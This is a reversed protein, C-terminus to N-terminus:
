MRNVKEEEELDVHSDYLPVHCENANGNYSGFADRDQYILPPRAICVQAKLRMNVHNFHVDSCDVLPLLHPFMEELYSNKYLIAHKCLIQQNCPTSVIRDSPNARQLSQGKKCHGFGLYLVDHQKRAFEHCTAVVDEMKVGKGFVIDDELILTYTDDSKRHDNAKHMELAHYLACLYSLHVTCKAPNGYIGPHWTTEMTCYPCPSKPIGVMYMTTLTRLTPENVDDPTLSDFFWVDSPWGVSRLFRQMHDRRQSLTLTYTVIRDRFWEMSPNTTTEDQRFSLRLFRSKTSAFLTGFTDHVHEHCSLFVFLRQPNDHDVDYVLLDRGIREEGFYALVQEHHRIWDERWKNTIDHITHFRHYAMSEQVYEKSEMRKNLWVDMSRTNLIFRSGPYQEDLMRYFIMHAYVNSTYDEMDTFANFRDDYGHLLRRGNKFNEMMTTALRGRDWRVVRYGLQELFQHLFRTGCRNFGIQFVKPQNM